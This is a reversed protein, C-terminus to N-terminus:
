QYSLPIGYVAEYTEKWLEENKQKMAACNERLSLRPDPIIPPLIHVTYAQIPFGADDLRDSDEMTIFLPVVPVMSKAAFRYAGEKCPRPKKYNWWMGQEPYILIKEGRALLTAVGDSLEGLVRFNASLPLTNCHRFFYGYLGPFNTYNGERIIKYLEKKPLESEVAKFVAYNDFPHFHNCTLVVGCDLSRLHEIGHVARIVLQKKRILGEFHAHAVRNAFWTQIRTSLKRHAYDVQGPKIPLTPPDDEVDRDFQGNKEYEKIKALVALRAARAREDM